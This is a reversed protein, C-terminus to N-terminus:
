LNKVLDELPNKEFSTLASATIAGVVKQNKEILNKEEKVEALEKNLENLREKLGEIVDKSM